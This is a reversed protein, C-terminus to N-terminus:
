IFFTAPHYFRPNSKSGACPSPSLTPPTHWSVGHIRGHLSSPPMRATLTTIWSSTSTPRNM